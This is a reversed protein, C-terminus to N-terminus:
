HASRRKRTKRRRSGGANSSATTRSRARSPRTGELRKPADSIGMIWLDKGRPWVGVFGDDYKAVLAPEVVPAAQEAKRTAGKERYGKRTKEGILKEMAARADPARVIKKQGPSGIRGFRVVLTDEALGIEWFKSSTGKVLEFRRTKMPALTGVFHTM